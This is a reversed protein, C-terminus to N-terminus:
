YEAIQQKWENNTFKEHNEVMNEAFKEFQSVFRSEKIGMFASVFMTLALLTKM